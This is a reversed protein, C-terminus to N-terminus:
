KRSSKSRLTMASRAKSRTAYGGERWIVGYGIYTGNAQEEPEARNRSSKSRLTMASRSKSRTACGGEKLIVKGINTGNAQQEPKPHKVASKMEEPPCKRKGLCSSTELVKRGEQQDKKTVHTRPTQESGRSTGVPVNRGRRSSVRGRGSARPLLVEDEDVQGDAGPCQEGQRVLKGSKELTVDLEVVGEEEQPNTSVEDSKEKLKPDGPEVHGLEAEQLESDLGADHNEMETDTVVEEEANSQTNSLDNVSSSRVEKDDGDHGELDRGLALRIIEKELTKVRRGEEAALRAHVNRWEKLEISTMMNQDDNLPHTFLRERQQLNARSQAIAKKKADVEARLTSMVAFSIEYPGNDEVGLTKFIGLLLNSNAAAVKAAHNVLQSQVLRRQEEQQGILEKLQSNCKGSTCRAM